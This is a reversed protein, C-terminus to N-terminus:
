KMLLNEADADLGMEDDSPGSAKPAYRDVEPRDIGAVRRTTRWIWGQDLGVLGKQEFKQAAADRAKRCKDRHKDVEAKNSGDEKLAIYGPMSRTIEDFWQEQTVAVHGYPVRAEIPPMARDPKAREVEVLRHLVRMATMANTPLIFRGDATMNPKGTRAAEEGARMDAADFSEVKGGPAVICTTIDERDEDKGIPIRRLRFEHSDGVPAGKCRTITWTNPAGGEGKEVFIEADNDGTISSHGRPGKTKSNKATHHIPIVSAGTADRILEAHKFLTGVHESKTDDGGALAKNFTDVIIVAPSCGWEAQMVKTVDGVEAILKKAAEDNSRLDVAKPILYLPLRTTLPLGKSLLWGQMRITFDEQGEGAIYIVGSPKVKRGFWEKPAAPDVAAWVMSMVWDLTLFTKGGGPAGVIFCITRALFVNKLLWDRVPKVGAIEHVFRGGFTSKVVAGIMLSTEAVFEDIPQPKRLFQLRTSSGDTV